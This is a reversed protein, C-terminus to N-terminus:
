PFDSYTVIRGNNGSNKCNVTFPNRLRNGILFAYCTEAHNVYPNDCRQLLTSELIPYYDNRYPEHEPLSDYNAQALDIRDRLIAIHAKVDNESVGEYGVNWNPDNSMYRLLIRADDAYVHGDGNVDGGLLTENTGNYGAGPCKWALMEEGSAVVDSYM